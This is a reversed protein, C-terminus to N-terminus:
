ARNLWNYPWGNRSTLWSLASAGNSHSAEFNSTAAFARDTVTLKRGLIVKWLPAGSSESASMALQFAM